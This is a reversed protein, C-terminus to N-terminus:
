ATEVAAIAGNRTVVLAARRGFPEALSRGVALDSGPNGDPRPAPTFSDLDFRDIGSYRWIEETERPLSGAAFREWADARRAALWRPGALTHSADATFATLTM